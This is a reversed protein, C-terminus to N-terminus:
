VRSGAGSSPNSICFKLGAAEAKLILSRQPVTDHMGAPGIAEHSAASRLSSASAIQLSKKLHSHGTAADEPRGRTRRCERAHRPVKLQLPAVSMEQLGHRLSLISEVEVM